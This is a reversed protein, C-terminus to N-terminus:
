SPRREVTGSTAEPPASMGYTTMVRVVAKRWSRDYL